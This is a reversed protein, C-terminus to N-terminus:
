HNHLNPSTPPAQIPLPNKFDKTITDEVSGCTLMQDGFYPNQIQDSSSLWKAGESGFAMPCFQVYYTDSPIGLVKITEILADSLFGFQERQADVNTLESIKESHAQLSTAKEMWFEHSAGKVLGMDVTSIVHLLDGAKKSALISDTQVFADKLGLYAESVKQLQQKFVSPTESTYDPLHESHDAGKGMVHQNMMSAQNNLQAAADISFSGYTVVEDGAELGEKVQYTDGMREGLEIERYQFSPINADAIKVYVVSRKGTWLVASKPVLLQSDNSTKSKIVGQVFMEPKLKGARNPVEARLSAVRTKPNIVPDIFTIKSQFAQNPLGPASFVVQDGLNLFALDEEYADFLVWLQNLSFLNFLVEGQKVYDGVAIKRQSVIGSADAFVTFTEKIKGEALIEDIQNSPIKWYILKQKAAELLAPNTSKLKQAELLEQQASVLDPSYIAALKQGKKVQEGTFSVFLKEVRGPIHAVQSSALREDVQIKGSLIIEKESTASSKLVSTEIQALKVAEPTMELVLPDSSSNEDLPILDMGCIPCDGPENQRIQPHMSCTWITEGFPQATEGMNAQSSAPAKHFILYGLGIGAVVAILVWIYSFRNNKTNMKERSSKM